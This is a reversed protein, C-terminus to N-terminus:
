TAVGRISPARLPTGLDEHIAGAGSIVERLFVFFFFVSRENFVSSFAFSSFCIRFRELCLLM